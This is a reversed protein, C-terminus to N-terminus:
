GAPSTEYAVAHGLEWLARGVLFARETETMTPEVRNVVQDPDPKIGQAEFERVARNIKAKINREHDNM